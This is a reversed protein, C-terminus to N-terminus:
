PAFLNAGDWCSIPYSVTVAEVGGARVSTLGQGCSNYTHSELVVGNSDLVTSILNSYPGNYQFSVTTNDPKTYQILRGLDDYSYSLSLGVDSTVATVLYSSPNAYSFYLHRSAPDTVTVLRYSSDYTLSTVNGNRDTISLLQGSNGDFFRQEGNQLILTWVPENQSSLSQVLTAVQSAPSVPAYLNTNNSQGTFGFSWFGGDGRTYEVYGDSGAFVTEEFTSRWKPGFMGVKVGSAVVPWISDWTRTLTLGGGLGPVRLDTQTFYTDGTALDIPSAAQAACRWCFNYCANTKVTAIWEDPGDSVGNYATAPLLPICGGSSGLLSYIACTVTTTCSQAEAGLSWACVLLGLGLSVRVSKTIM